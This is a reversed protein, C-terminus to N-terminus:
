VVPFPWTWMPLMLGGLRSYHM